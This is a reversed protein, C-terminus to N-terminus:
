NLRAGVSYSAFQFGLDTRFGFAMFLRDSIVWYVKEHVTTTGDTETTTAYFVNRLVPCQGIGELVGTSLQEEEDLHAFSGSGTSSISVKGASRGTGNTDNWVNIFKYEGATQALSVDVVKFALLFGNGPGQDLILAAQQTTAYAFGTMTTGPMQDLTVVLREPHTTDARWQGNLDPDTTPFMGQTFAEPEVAPIDGQGGTALMRVKVTGNADVTVVGWEKNDASGNVPKNSIAIYIYNGALHQQWGSNDMEATIGFSLTNNVNGTPFNAALAQDTLEVAYFRNSGTSVKYVGALDNSLVTFVGSEHQGTTENHVTYTRADPDVDFTVLDGHSAAGAYENATTGGADPTGGSSTSSGNNDDDDGTCGVTGLAVALVVLYQWMARNTM